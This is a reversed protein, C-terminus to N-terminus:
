NPILTSRPIVDKRKRRWGLLGLAGLGTAFLPLAAPLPTAPELSLGDPVTVTLTTSGGTPILGSSPFVFASVTLPIDLQGTADISFEEPGTPGVPGPTNRGADLFPGGLFSIGPGSANGSMTFVEPPFPPSPFNLFGSATGQLTGISPGPNDGVLTLTGGVSLGGSLTVSNAQASESQAVLTTAVVASIVLVTPGIKTM